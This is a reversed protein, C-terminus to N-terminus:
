WYFGTMAALCAVGAGLMTWVIDKIDPKGSLSDYMEKGCAFFLAVLLAAQSGLYIFNFITFLLAGYIFHNAKDRPIVIADIVRQFLDKDKFIAM